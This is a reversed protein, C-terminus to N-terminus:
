KDKRTNEKKRGVRVYKNLKREEHKMKNGRENRKEKREM